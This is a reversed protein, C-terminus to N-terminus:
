GGLEFYVPYDTFSPISSIFTHATEAGEVSIDNNVMFEELKAEEWGKQFTPQYNADLATRILDRYKDAKQGITGSALAAIIEDGFLILGSVHHEPVEQWADDPDTDLKWVAAIDHDVRKTGDNGATPAANLRYKYERAMNEEAFNNYVETASSLTGTAPSLSSGAWILLANLQSTASSLTGDADAVPNGLESIAENLASTLDSLTGDALRM